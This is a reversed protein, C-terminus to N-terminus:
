LKVIEAVSALDYDKAPIFKCRGLMAVAVLGGAGTSGVTVSAKVYRYSNARDLNGPRISIIAQGADGTGAIQTIAASTVDKYTGTSTVAQTLKMDVVDEIVGLLLIVFLEELASMDVADSLVTAGDVAQPDITGVLGYNEHLRDM